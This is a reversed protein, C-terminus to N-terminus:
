IPGFVLELVYRMLALIKPKAVEEVAASYASYLPAILLAVLAGVLLKGSNEKVYNAASWLRGTLDVRESTPLSNSRSVDEIILRLGQDIDRIAADGGAIVVPADIREPFSTRMTQSTFSLVEEIFRTLESDRRDAYCSGMPIPSFLVAHIGRGPRSRLLFDQGDCARQRDAIFECIGPSINWLDDRPQLDSILVRFGPARFNGVGQQPGVRLNPFTTSDNWLLEGLEGRLVLSAAGYSANAKELVTSKGEAESIFVLMHDIM